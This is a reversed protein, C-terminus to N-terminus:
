SGRASLETPQEARLDAVRAVETGARTLADAAALGRDDATVVVARKGPRLAWDDVLRHVGGPLMVGVLDNGPFVLPQEVCGTAVVIRKARFRYLVNRAAVPVLGGEYLGLA